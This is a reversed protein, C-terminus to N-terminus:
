FLRFFFSFGTGDSRTPLFGTVAGPGELAPNSEPGAQASRARGQLRRAGAETVMGQPHRRGGCLGEARGRGARRGSNPTHWRFKAGPPAQGEAQAHGTARCLPEM